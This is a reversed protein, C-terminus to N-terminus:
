YLDEVSLNDIIYDEVTEEEITYEIFNDETLDEEELLSAIDYSSIEEDLIYNEVTKYDLEEKTNSINLTFLLVIAAAISSVYVLNKKSFLKIVKPETKRTKSIIEQELNEFYNDPVEFGSNSATSKLKIQNMVSDELSDFYDKPAKFGSEKITHLKDKKM